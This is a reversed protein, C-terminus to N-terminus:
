LFLINLQRKIRNKSKTRFLDQIANYRTMNDLFELSLANFQLIKFSVPIGRLIDPFEAFLFKFFRRFLDNIIIKIIVVVLVVIIASQCCHM